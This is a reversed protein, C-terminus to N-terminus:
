RALNEIETWGLLGQKKIQAKKQYIRVLKVSEGKQLPIKYNTFDTACEKYLFDKEMWFNRNLYSSYVYVQNKSEELVEVKSYNWPIFLPLATDGAVDKLVKVEPLDDYSVHSVTNGDFILCNLQGAAKVVNGGDIAYVNSQGDYIPDFNAIRQCYETVPLHGVVVKKQFTKKTRLFFPTTMVERFDTGFNKEDVLAAHTFLIDNTVIVHPADNLFSLEKLYHKRLTQCYIDMDVNLNLGIAQAMEHILSEKRMKLVNKLFNLRYSYLVNKAIFDCNGMLIHVDELECQKMIYHLTELNQPGKEVLDGLLILCDNGPQYNAKKLVEKYAKLNGHIDSICLIRKNSINLTKTVISRDIM